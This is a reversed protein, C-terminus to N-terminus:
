SDQSGDDATGEQFSLRPKGFFTWLVHDLAISMNGRFRSKCMDDLLAFLNSDVRARIDEKSGHFKKGTKPPLPPSDDTDDKVVNHAQVAQMIRNEMDALMLAVEERTVVGKDDTDVKDHSDKTAIAIMDINDETDKPEDDDMDVMNTTDKVSQTDVTDVKTLTDINKGHRSYLGRLNGSQYPNGNKDRFGDRDLIEVIEPWGKGATKLEHARKVVDITKPAKEPTKKAKM